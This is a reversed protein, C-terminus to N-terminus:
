KTMFNEGTFLCFRVHFETGLGLETWMKVVYNELGINNNDNWSLEHGGLPRM